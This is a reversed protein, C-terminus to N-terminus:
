ASRARVSPSGKPPVDNFENVTAWLAAITHGPFRKHLEYLRERQTTAEPSRTLTAWAEHVAQREAVAPLKPAGVHADHPVLLERLRRADDRTLKFLEQLMSMPAGHRVFYERLETDRRVSDIRRFCGIVTQNDFGAHIELQDMGAAQIFDRAGRRRLLDLLEPDIGATLMADLSAGDADLQEVLHELILRKITADTIRLM